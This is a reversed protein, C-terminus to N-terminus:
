RSVGPSFFFRYGVSIVPFSAGSIPARKKLLFEVWQYGGEIYMAHGSRSIRQLGGFVGLVSANKAGTQPLGPDIVQLVIDIDGQLSSLSLGGYPSLPLHPTAYFRADLSAQAMSFLPFRLAGGLSFYSDLHYELVLSPFGMLAGFSFDTGVGLRSIDRLPPAALSGDVAPVEQPWLPVAPPLDARGPAQAALSEELDMLYLLIEDAYASNPYQELFFECAEVQQEEPLLLLKRVFVEYIRADKDSRDFHDFRDFRGFRDAWSPSALLIMLSLALLFKLIQRM